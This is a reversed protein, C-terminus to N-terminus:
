GRSDICMACRIDGVNPHSSLQERLCRELVVGRARCQAILGDSEMVKLVELAARCGKEM